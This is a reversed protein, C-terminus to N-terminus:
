RELARAPDVRYYRVLERYLNPSREKVFRPREFFAETAVAFFEAENTAGLLHRRADDTPSM